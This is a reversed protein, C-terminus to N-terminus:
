RRRRPQSALATRVGRIAAHVLKADTNMDHRIEAGVREIRESNAIVGEAVTRIDGRLGESVVDFHRRTEESSTRMEARLETHLRDILADLYGRTEPDM